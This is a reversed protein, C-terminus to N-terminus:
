PLLTLLARFGAARDELGGEELFAVFAEIERVEFAPFGGDQAAYELTTLADEFLVSGASFNDQLDYSAGLWALTRATWSHLPGLQKDYIRVARTLASDAEVIDNGRLLWIGLRGYASGVRWHGDPWREEAARVDDRALRVAGAYDGLDRGRLAQLNASVMLTNPHGRGYTEALIGLAEEYLEAAGAHEGRQHLLFALNNLTAPLRDANGARHLARLPPLAERYLSEAEDLKEEARLMLALDSLAGVFEPSERGPDGRYVDVVERMLVVATDARELGRLTLALARATAAAGHDGGPGARRIALAERLPAEAQPWSLHRNRATGLAHLAEALKQPDGEPDERRLVIAREILEVATEYSGLSSYVNGLTVLMEARLDPEDALEADVRSVGRELLERATVTDGLAQGPDAGGFVSTMFTTIQEARAAAATALDREAAIRRSQVHLTAVYGIAGAILAIATAVGWRHRGVFKRARYQVAGASAAVPQGTRYRELDSLFQVVSHYRAEPEKRLAKLIIDDLDGALTRQLGDDSAGRVRRSPREVKSELTRREFERPSTDPDGFPREGTLLEYLLLGLQFVDSSTTVPDGALQEPSAYGPTLLRVGTQTLDAAGQDDLLKAIGFDLLKVEGGHTILINSPKIDRHIVLHRHAHGVARLVTGFLDLRAPISLRRDDCYTTIPSGEVYEMALYPRGDEASGGDILRAINPHDLSALIQREARFRRVVDDSDLGRHLLKIAVRQEFEGDDREALYVTGTGGRGVREILLYPGAHELDRPTKSEERTDSGLDARVRAILPDGSDRWYDNSEEHARILDEVEKRLQLDEGCSESLFEARAQRPHDLVAEFLADIEHWRESGATM